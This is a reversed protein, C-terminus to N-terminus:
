GYNIKHGKRKCGFVVGLDALFSSNAIGLENVSPCSQTDFSSGMGFNSEGSPLPNGSFVKSHANMWIDGGLSHAYFLALNNPPEGYIHMTLAYTLPGGIPLERKRYHNRRSPTGNDFGELVLVRTKPEARPELVSDDAWPLYFDRDGAKVMGILQFVDKNIKGILSM